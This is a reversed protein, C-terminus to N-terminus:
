LGGITETLEALSAIRPYPVGPYRDHRDLLVAKLGVDLAPEIDMKPSDGVHVSSSPDVGAREVAIRYLAPDPKEIGERGSIVIPDFVGGLELEVLMDELWTEFNSILGLRYGSSRLEGVAPLADDFLKYSASSSFVSFLEDVLGENEIGLEELFRRYLFSWFALSAEASLSPNDVGTAEAIDVLHPAMRERVKVVDSPTVAHGRRTCVSAFLEEFSPHPRLLTDGADFFVLEIM